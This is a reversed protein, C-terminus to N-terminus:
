VSLNWKYCKTGNRTVSTGNETVLSSISFSLKNWRYLGIKVEVAPTASCVLTKIQPRCRTRRCCPGDQWVQASAPVAADWRYEPARDSSTKWRCRPDSLRKGCALSWCGVTRHLSITPAWDMWMWQIDDAARRCHSQWSKAPVSWCSWDRISSPLIGFRHPEQRRRDASRRDNWHIRYSRWHDRWQNLAPALSIIADSLTEAEKLSAVLLTAASTRRPFSTTSRTFSSQISVSSPSWNEAFQEAQAKKRRGNWRNAGGCAFYLEQDGFNKLHDLYRKHFPLKPSVLNDQNSDLKLFSVAIITSTLFYAAGTLLIRSPSIKNMLAAVAPPRKSASHPKLTCKHNTLLPKTRRLGCQSPPSWASASRNKAWFVPVM